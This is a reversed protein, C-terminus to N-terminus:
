GEGRDFVAISEVHSTHPFMDLVGARSLSWGQETVLVKADRALTAPHCSVYVIKRAQFSPFRAIVERAGARPPDLLIRAYPKRSWAGPQSEAFLDAQEFDVNDFGNRRANERARGVLEAEGEVGTVRAAHRALPLTFNGLGSFLDLVEDGSQADLQRLALDILSQNIAGNVQIFDAPKFHIDVDAESLHYNLEIPKGDLPVASEARGRQLYLKVDHTQQFVLMAERDKASPESLVRLVLVTAEEGVATELQPVRDAISLSALMEALPAILGGVKPDMVDCHQLETVLPRQREKFGVFVRSGNKHVSFRARRRYGWVPGTLPPLLEHPELGGIRRLNDLLIQQKAAIQAAPELHQLSCGGCVGFHSCRPSVRQGSPKLVEVVRAEDYDRRRKRIHFRVEEGPLADEVFLTKGGLRAIGRGDHSLGSITVTQQAAAAARNM